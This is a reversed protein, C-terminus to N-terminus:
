NKIFTFQETEYCLNLYLFISKKNQKRSFLSKVNEKDIVKKTSNPKEMDPLVNKQIKLKAKEKSKEKQEVLKEFGTKQRPKKEIKKSQKKTM